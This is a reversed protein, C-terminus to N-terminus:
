LVARVAAMMARKRLGALMSMPLYFAGLILVGFMSGDDPHSQLIGSRRFQGVSWLGALAQARRRTLYSGVTTNEVIDAAYKRCCNRM